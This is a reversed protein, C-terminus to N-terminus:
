AQRCLCFENGEPDALTVFIDDPNESVYLRTAGLAEIRGAAAEEDVAYLDIHVRNKVRKPEPVKQFGINPQGAPGVLMQWTDDDGERVAYGTVAAWFAALSAPDACDVVVSGMRVDM